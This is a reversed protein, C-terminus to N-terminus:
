TLMQDWTAQERVPHASAAHLVVSERCGRLHADVATDHVRQM